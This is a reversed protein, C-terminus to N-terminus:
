PMRVQLGCAQLELLDALAVDAECRDCPKSSGGASVAPKPTVAASGPVCQGKADAGSTSSSGSSYCQAHQERRAKKGAPGDSSPWIVATGGAHLLRLDELAQEQTNLSGGSSEAQRATRVTPLVHAQQLRLSAAAYISSASPLASNLNTSRSSTGPGAETASRGAGNCFVRRKSPCETSEARPRKARWTPWWCIADEIDQTM